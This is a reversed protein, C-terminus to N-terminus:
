APTKRVLDLSNRYRWAVALADFGLRKPPTVGWLSPGLRAMDVHYHTPRPNLFNRPM